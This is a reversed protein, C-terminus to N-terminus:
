RVETLVVGLVRASLSRLTETIETLDKIKTKGQEAVLVVGDCALGIVAADSAVLLGPTDCFVFDHSNRLEALVKPLSDSALLENATNSRPGGFLVDVGTGPVQVVVDDVAAHGTIVSTLGHDSKAGVYSALRLQRLDADVLAVQRGMGCLVVALNTATATTSITSTPSIFAMTEPPADVDVYLLNTRLKRVAEAYASTADAALDLRRNRRAADKPLMGLLPAGTAKAVHESTRVRPDLIRLLWKVLLGLVMGGVLGVVINLLTNASSPSTPPVAKEIVTVDSIPRDSGVPTELRGIYQTLDSAYTNAIDAAGKASSDTASLKVLVTKPVPDATVKASLEEPSIALGLDDIVKVALDRSGVLEAYTSARKQSFLDGNYAGISDASAPPGLFLLSTATYSTPTVAGFTLGAAIGLVAGLGVQWWRRASEHVKM